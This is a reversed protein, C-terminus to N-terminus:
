RTAEYTLKVIFEPWVLPQVVSWENSFPRFIIFWVGFALFDDAVFRQASDQPVVFTDRRSRAKQDFYELLGILSQPEGSRSNSFASRTPQTFAVM